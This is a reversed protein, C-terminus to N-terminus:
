AAPLTVMVRGDVVTLALAELSAGVCPGRLCYGDQPRFLAGHMACQIFSNDHDLFQDPQWELPAGTHPCSNRYGSLVDGKRVLFLRLPAGGDHEFEFGRSGPDALESLACLDLTRADPV